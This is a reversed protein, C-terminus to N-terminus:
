KSKKLAKLLFIIRDIIWQNDEKENEGLRDTKFSMPWSEIPGTEFYGKKILQSM